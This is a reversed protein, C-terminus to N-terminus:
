HSSHLAVRNGETDEMLGMFGHEPSIQTKEQLVKGGAAEVRRLEDKLDQCSLYILTGEHSPVYSDYQMLGGTAGYTDPGNNPFWAMKPGGLDMATMTIQFVDEYFKQAREINAVPIEFWAVPNQSKM